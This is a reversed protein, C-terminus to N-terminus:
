RFSPTSSLFAFKRRIGNVERGIDRLTAREQPSLGSRLRHPAAIALSFFAL